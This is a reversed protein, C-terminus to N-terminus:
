CFFTIHVNCFFYHSILRLMHLQKIELFVNGLVLLKKEESFLYLTNTSHHILYASHYLMWDHWPLNTAHLVKYVFKLLLYM